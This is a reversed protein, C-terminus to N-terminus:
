KKKLVGGTIFGIFTGIGAIVAAFSDVIGTFGATAFLGSIIVLGVIMKFM